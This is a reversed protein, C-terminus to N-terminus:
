RPLFPPAVRAELAEEEWLQVMIPILSPLPLPRNFVVLRSPDRLAALISHERIRIPRSAAAAAARAARAADVAAAFHEAGGAAGAPAAATPAAGALHHGTALWQLRRRAWVDGPPQQTSFGRRLLLARPTM